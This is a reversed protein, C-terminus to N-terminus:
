ERKECPIQNGFKLNVVSFKNWGTIKFGKIYLQKLNDFKESMNDIGGFLIVHEGVTPVLEIEKQLNIYIQAIQAKWFADNEIYCALEWVDHLINNKKKEVVAAKKYSQYIEGNAILIRDCSRISLPLIHGKESIYFSEEKANFVRVVVKHQIAKVIIEGRVNGIVEVSQLYPYTSIKKEVKGLDVEKVLKGLLVGCSDKIFKDLDSEEFLPESPYEIKYTIKHFKRDKSLVAHAILVGVITLILVIIIIARRTKM